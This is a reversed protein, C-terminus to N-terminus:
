LSIVKSTKPDRSMVIVGYKCNNDEVYSSSHVLMSAFISYSHLIALYTDFGVLVLLLIRKRSWGSKFEV